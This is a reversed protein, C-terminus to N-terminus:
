HRVPRGGSRASSRNFDVSRSASENKETFRIFWGKMSQLVGRSPPYGIDALKRELAGYDIFKLNYRVKVRSRTGNAQVRNVGLLRGLVTEVERSKDPKTLNRVRIVNTKIIDRM